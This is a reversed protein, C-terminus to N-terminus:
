PPTAQGLSNNGWCVVHGDTKVGCTHYAGATVQQFEGRPPTAQGKSNGRNDTNSGWCAVRGDTKVGCTHDFGTSVQQFIGAGPEAKGYLITGRCAVRGNTKVGCTHDVGASVQQFTGTPAGTYHSDFDSWCVASGNTKIGCTHFGGATVQQFAETPPSAQGYNDRGWCAVRGGIKVGCTHHLGASVQRFEGTPQTSQGFKNNGWCIVKGNTKIGCTHAAGASVQLFEGTPPLAQGDHDNGWCVISGVGTVGCTHSFGASVHQFKDSPSLTPKPTYTPRITATPRSTATPPVQSLVELRSNLEDVSLAFAVGEADTDAIGFTIIGIVDGDRNLLPGGSNGPNLVADTQFFEYGEFQRRASIIGMTVTLDDGLTSRLPFGLALVDEGLAVRGASALSVAAFDSDASVQVVALDASENRNLVQGRFEKGGLVVTVQRRDGVVHANTAVLGSADYVFGTGAGAPTIIQAISPRFRSVLEAVTPTATVALRTLEAAVKEGVSTDTEDAAVCGAVATAAVLLTIVLWMKVM